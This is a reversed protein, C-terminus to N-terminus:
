PGEQAFNAFNAALRSREAERVVARGHQWEGATALKGIHRRRCSGGIEVALLRAFEITTPDEDEPGIIQLGVPLGEETLGIPAATAPLYSLSALGAFFLQEAYPASKGNVSVTREDRNPQPQAPFRGDGGGADAVCRLETASAFARDGMGGRPTVHCRLLQTLVLWDDSCAGSPVTEALICNPWGSPRCM